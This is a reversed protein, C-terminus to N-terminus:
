RHDCLHGLPGALAWARSKRWLVQSIQEAGSMSCRLSARPHRRAEGVRVVRGSRRRWQWALVRKQRWAWAAGRVGGGGGRMGSRGEGGAPDWGFGGAGRTPEGTGEGGGHWPQHRM